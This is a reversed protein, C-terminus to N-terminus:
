EIYYKLENLLISNEDFRYFIAKDIFFYGNDEYIFSSYKKVLIETLESSLGDKIFFISIPNDTGYKILTYEKDSVLGFENLLEIFKLLTYNIYKNEEELRLIAYNTIESDSLKTIDIYLPRQDTSNRKKLGWKEGVFILRQNLSRTKWYYVMSRVREKLTKNNMKDTIMYEYFKRAQENELRKINNKNSSILEIDKFFVYYIKDLITLTNISNKLEEIRKQITLENEIVNIETINSTIM